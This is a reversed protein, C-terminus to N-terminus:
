DMGALTKVARDLEAAAQAPAVFYRNELLVAVNSLSEVDKGQQGLHIIWRQVLDVRREFAAPDKPDTVRGTLEAKEDATLEIQEAPAAKKIERELAGKEAASLSKLRKLYEQSLNALTNTKPGQRPMIHAIEGGTRAATTFAVPASTLTPALRAADTALVKLQYAQGPLLGTLTVTHQTVETQLPNAKRGELEDSRGFIVVSDCPRSTIWSVQADTSEAKVRLDQIAIGPPTRVSGPPTRLLGEDLAATGGAVIQYAYEADTKLGSLTVRYDVGPQGRVQGVTRQDPHASEWVDVRAFCVASMQWSVTFGSAEPTVNLSSVSLPPGNPACGCVLALAVLLVSRM